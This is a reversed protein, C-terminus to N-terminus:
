ARRRRALVVLATLGLLAILAALGASDLAPVEYAAVQCSLVVDDVWFSEGANSIDDDTEGIFRVEILTGPTANAVLAAGARWAAQNLLNGLGSNGNGGEPAAPRAPDPRDGSCGGNDGVVLPGSGDVYVEVRARDYCADEDFDLFYNYELRVGHGCEAPVEIRGTSLADSSFGDGYSLCTEPSIWHATGPASHGALPAAPCTSDFVWGNSTDGDNIAVMAGLDAAFTETYFVQGQAAGSLAVALAVAGLASGKIKSTM